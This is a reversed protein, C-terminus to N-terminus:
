FRSNNLTRWRERSVEQKLGTLTCERITNETYRFTKFMQKGVVVVNTADYRNMSIEYIAPSVGATYITTDVTIKSGNAKAKDWTWMTLLWDPGNTQTILHRGDGSFAM